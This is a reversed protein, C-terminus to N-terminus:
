ASRRGTRQGPPQAEILSVEGEGQREDLHSPRRRLAPLVPFEQKSVKADNPFTSVLPAPSPEVPFCTNTTSPPYRRKSLPKSNERRPISCAIAPPERPTPQVFRSTFRPIILSRLM